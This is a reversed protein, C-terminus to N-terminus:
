AAMSMGGGPLNACVPDCAPGSEKSGNFWFACLWVRTGPPLSSDFSVAIKTVRGTSGEFKWGAIDTPPTAGVYSFVSAGITGAPKGRSAGMADRLRMTTTWADSSIVELVPASGPTPQRTPQARPPMGLATKQADTVTPSAYIKNALLAAGNRLALRAANKAVVAPKNRQAPDCALLCDEYTTSLATFTTVDATVLGYTAPVPTILSIVNKAWALLGNDTRPLSLAIM